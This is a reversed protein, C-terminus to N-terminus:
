QIVEPQYVYQNIYEEDFVRVKTITDIGTITPNHTDEEAQFCYPKLSQLTDIDQQVTAFIGKAITSKETGNIAYKINLAGEVLSVTGNLINNCDQIVIDLINVEMQLFLLTGFLIRNM